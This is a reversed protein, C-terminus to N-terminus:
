DVNYYQMYATIHNDYYNNLNINFSIFEEVHTFDQFSLSDLSSLMVPFPLSPVIDSDNKIRYSTLNLSDYYKAGITNFLRPSAFSYHIIKNIEIEQLVRKYLDLTALTSMAGGLSFGTIIFQTDSNLYTRIKDFIESQVKEYLSLFGGHIKMNECKNYIIDPDVQKYNLDILYLMENYTGTFVLMIINYKNSYCFWLVNVKVFYVDTNIPIVIDFKPVLLPKNEFNCISVKRALEFLKQANEYEYEKELQELINYKLSQNSGEKIIVSKLLQQLVLEM